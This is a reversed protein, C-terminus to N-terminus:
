KPKKARSTSATTKRKRDEVLVFNKNIMNVAEELLKDLAENAFAVGIPEERPEELLKSKVYEKKKLYCPDPIMKVDFDFTLSKVLERVAERKTENTEPEPYDTKKPLIIETAFPIYKVLFMPSNNVTYPILETYRIKGPQRQKLACVLVREKEVCNQWFKKFYVDDKDRSMLFFPKGLVYGIDTSRKSVYLLTLGLPLTNDMICNKEYSDFKISDRGPAKTRFYYTADVLEDGDEGTLKVPKGDKTLRSNILASTRIFDLKYCNLTRSTDGKFPYFLMKRRAHRMVVASTLKETLGEEDECIVEVLPNDLLSFLENYFKSYNFDSTTPIIQFDIQNGSFTKIENFVTFKKTADQVPEDDDTIYILTRKYFATKIDHFVKKCALLFGALDFEGKRQYEEALQKNPLGAKTKLLKVTDILNDRFETLCPSEEKALLVAFQNWSRNSPALLLSDALSYCASLCDKFPISNDEKKRFMLPHTDIAIVVFTPKFNKETEPIEDDEENDSNEENRWM